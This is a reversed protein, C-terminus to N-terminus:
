FIDHYCYHFNGDLDSVKVDMHATHVAMVLGMVVSGVTARQGGVGREGPASGDKMRSATAAILPVRLLM